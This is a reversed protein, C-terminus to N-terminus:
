RPKHDCGGCCDADDELFEEWAVPEAVLKEGTTKPQQPAPALPESATIPNKSM